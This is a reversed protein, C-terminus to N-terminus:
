SLKEIKDEEKEENIERKKKSIKSQWKNNNFTHNLFWLRVATKKRNKYYVRRLYM